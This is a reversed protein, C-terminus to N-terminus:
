EESQADPLLQETHLITGGFYGPGASGTVNVAKAHQLLSGISQVNVKETLEGFVRLSEETYVQILEDLRSQMTAKTARGTSRGDFVIPRVHDFYSREFDARIRLCDLYLYHGDFALHSLDGQPGKGIIIGPKALFMHAIGNRVLLRVAQDFPKYRSEVRCLYKHWYNSFHKNPQRRAEEPDTKDTAIPDRSLLCGLLEMGAITAVVMPYGAAGCKKPLTITIRAISELDGLLYGEIFQVLFEDIKM